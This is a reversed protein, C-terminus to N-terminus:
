DPATDSDAEFDRFLKQFPDIGIGIVVGVGIPSRLVRLNGLRDRRRARAVLRM